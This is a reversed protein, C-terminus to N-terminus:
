EWIMKASLTGNVLSQVTFNYSTTQWNGGSTRPANAVIWRAGGSYPVRRVQPLITYDGSIELKALTNAGSNTSFTVVIRENDDYNFSFGQGSWSCANRASSYSLKKTILTIQTANKEFAQKLAHYERRLTAIIKSISPNM